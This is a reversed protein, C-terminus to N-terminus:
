LSIVEAYDVVEGIGKSNKAYFVVYARYFYGKSGTYSVYNYVCGTDEEIMVSYDEPYYTKVTTWKSANTSRQVKICSVGLEDMGGASVVDFYVDFSTSSTKYLFSDWCMFYSSSRPSAALAAAGQESVDQAYAVTGLLTVLVMIAAFCRIFRKM